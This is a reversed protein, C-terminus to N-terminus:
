VKRWIERQFKVSVEFVCAINTSMSSCYRGAYSVFEDALFYVYCGAENRVLFYLNDIRWSVNELYCLDLLPELLAQLEVMGNNIQLLFM